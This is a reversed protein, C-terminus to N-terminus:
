TINIYACYGIYWHMELIDTIHMGLRRMLVCFIVFFFLQCSTNLKMFKGEFIVVVATEEEISVLVNDTSLSVTFQEPDPEPVGDSIIYISVCERFGPSLSLPPPQSLLLLSFCCTILSRPCTQQIDHCCDKFFHCAADCYCNGVSCDSDCCADFGADVCSDSDAQSKISPATNHSVSVSLSM